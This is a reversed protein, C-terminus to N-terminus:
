GRPLHNEVDIVFRDVVEKMVKRLTKQHLGETLPYVPLIRGFNLPDRATLAALDVGEDLWEVEPHHIEKQFGYQVVEGTFVGKRGVRWTKKMFVPNFRFWKLTISGSEDGATVELFRKGGKTSKAEFSLVEAYFVEHAGPRLKSVKSLSRRDEYRHPLLFLADEVVYIGKKALQEALKPGVGKIFQMPTQLNKRHISQQLTSTAERIVPEAVVVRRVMLAGDEGIELSVPDGATLGLAELVADPLPLTKADTLKVIPM